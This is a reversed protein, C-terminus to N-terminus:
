RRWRLLAWGVVALWPMTTLGYGRQFLGVNKVTVLAGVGMMIAFMVSMAIFNLWLLVTVWRLERPARRFALAAFLPAFQIALGVGYGGHRDDPMPFLGGFLFGVGWLAVCLAFLTALTKGTGTRRLGRYVGISGVLCAVGGLLIGTNFIAPWRASASGLESAYQTVHSYGPYFLSAVLLTGFYIVPVAIAAYLLRDTLRDAQADLSALNPM